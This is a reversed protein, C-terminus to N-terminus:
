PAPLPQQNIPRGIWLSNAAAEAADRTALTMGPLSTQAVVLPAGDLDIVQLRVQAGPVLTKASKIPDEWALLTGGDCTAPDIGEPVQLDVLWARHGNWPPDTMGSAVPGGSGTATSWDSAVVAAIGDPGYAAVELTSTQWHCPDPHFDDISWAEISATGDTAAIGRTTGVWGAPAGVVLDYAAGARTGDSAEPDYLKVTMLAPGGTLPVGPVILSGERQPELSSPARPSPPAVPAEAGFRLSAVIGRAAAVDAPEAAPPVEVVVVLPSEVGPDEAYVVWVDARDGPRLGYSVPLGWLAYPAEDPNTTCVAAGTPAQISLTRGLRGGITTEAPTTVSVSRIDALVGAVGSVSPLQGEQLGLDPNCADRYVGEAFTLVITPGVARDRALAAYDAGLEASVWGEPVDFAAHVRFPNDGM